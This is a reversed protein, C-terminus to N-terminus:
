FCVEHEQEQLMAHIQGIKKKLEANKEREDRQREEGIFAADKRLEKITARREKNVKRKLSKLQSGDKNFPQSGFSNRNSILFFPFPFLPVFFLFILTHEIMFLIISSKQIHLVIHEFLIDKKKMSVFSSWEQGEEKRFM